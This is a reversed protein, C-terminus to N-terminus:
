LPKEPLRIIQEKLRTDLLVSAESKLDILSPNQKYLCKISLIWNGSNSPSLYKLRNILSTDFTFTYFVNCYLSPRNSENYVGEHVIIILYPRIGIFNENVLQM